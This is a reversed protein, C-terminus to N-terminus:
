SPKIIAYKGKRADMIVRFPSESYFIASFKKEVIKKTSNYLWSYDIFSSKDRYPVNFYGLKLSIVNHMFHTGQSPDIDFDKLGVEVIVKSNNIDDWKVPIGLFRDQSGWRGPGILIFNENKESLFENFFSIEEKIEITKTKDFREPYVLILYKLKEIIGHGIGSTTFLFINEKPIKDIDELKVAEYSVLPRVQLIRFELKDRIIGSFEIEVESGMATKSFDLIQSIIESLPYAKYKLLNAFDTVVPGSKRFGPYVRQSQYDITSVCYNIFRTSSLFRIDKKEIFSDEDTLNNKELNLAYFESQTISTLYNVDPYKPCFKYCKGGEVVYKGLGIAISCIGDENKIYSIPYFNYSQAVGSFHPFFLNKYKEGTIEQIIIGMKEEEINLNLRKLYARAEKLFVSSYVIKIAQILHFLREELSKSNNPLAVSKYIGAFPHFQSDELLGSSRVIIPNTVKKLIVKLIEILDKPFNANLFIKTIEEDTHFDYDLYLYNDEIFKDFYSTTIIFTKPIDVTSKEFRKKLRTATLFSNLFSLGRGKGGLSGDGIKLIIDNEDILDESFKLTKGKIRKIWLNKFVNILFKRHEEPSKFKEKKIKRLKRATNLEGRTLIWMCYHKREAHYKFSEIPINKLKNAFEFLSKARDIERGNPDRFVFDGFGCKNLLFQRLDNLIFPSNKYSIDVEKERAEKLLEANASQVLIPIDPNENKIIDVFELGFRDEEDDLQIDTIVCLLYDKYENYFNLAEERNTALLIKPRTRMRLYKLENDAEERILRQTEIMVEKLLEPLYKSYYSISDEVLLIVSTPGVKTDYPANLKDEVSKIMALFLRSNGTWFFINDIKSKKLKELLEPDCAETLLLLFNLNKNEKKLIDALEVPTPSGIQLTSIILDYNNKKILKLAHASNIAVDIKPITTLNFQHYSGIIQESFKINEELSFSNYFTSILLINRIRKQMLRHYLNEGYKFKEYIKILNEIEM